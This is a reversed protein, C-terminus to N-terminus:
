SHVNGQCAPATDVSQQGARHRARGTALLAADPARCGGSTDSSTGIARLWFLKQVFADLCSPLSDPPLGAGAGVIPLHRQLARAEQALRNGESDERAPSIVLADFVFSQLVGLVLEANEVAHCNFDLIQLM